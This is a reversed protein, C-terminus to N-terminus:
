ENWANEFQEKKFFISVINKGGLNDVTNVFTSNEASYPM